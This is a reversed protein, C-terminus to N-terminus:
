CIKTVGMVRRFMFLITFGVNLMSKHNKRVSRDGYIWQRGVCTRWLRTLHVEQQKRSREQRRDALYLFWFRQKCFIETKSNRHNCDLFFQSDQVCKLGIIKLNQSYRLYVTNQLTDNLVWFSFSDPVWIKFLTLLLVTFAISTGLPITNIQILKFLLVNYQILQFKVRTHKLVGHLTIKGLTKLM